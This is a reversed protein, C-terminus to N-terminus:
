LMELVQAEDDTLGELEEKTKLYSALGVRLALRIGQTTRPISFQCPGLKQRYSRAQEDYTFLGEGDKNTIIEFLVTAPDRRLAIQFHSYYAREDHPADFWRALPEGNYFYIFQSASMDEETDQELALRSQRQIFRNKCSITFSHFSNEEFIAFIRGNGACWQAPVALALPFPLTPFIASKKTEAQMKKPKKPLVDFRQDRM